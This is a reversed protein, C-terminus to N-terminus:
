SNEGPVSFQVREVQESAVEFSVDGATDVLVGYGRNTM